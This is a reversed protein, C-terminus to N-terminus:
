RSSRRECRQHMPPSITAYFASRQRHVRPHARVPSASTNKKRRPNYYIDELASKLGGEKDCLLDTDAARKVQDKLRERDEATRLPQLPPLQMASSEIGMEYDGEAQEEIAAAVAAFIAPEPVHQRAEVLAISEKPKAQRGKRPQPAYKYTPHMAAHRKKEEEALAVWPARQDDTMGRWVRGVERSLDNQNEAEKSDSAAASKLQAARAYDSRFLIFANRPRPIHGIPKSRTHSTTSKKPPAASVSGPSPLQADFVLPTPSASFSSTSPALSADLM